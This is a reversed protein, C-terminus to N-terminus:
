YSMSVWGRCFEFFDPFLPLRLLLLLLSCAFGVFLSVSGVHLLASVLPARGFYRGVSLHSLCNTDGSLRRLV